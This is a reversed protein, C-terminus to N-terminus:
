KLTTKPKKPLEIQITCYSISQNKKKKLFLRDFAESIKLLDQMIKTLFDREGDMVKRSHLHETKVWFKVPFGSGSVEMKPTDGMRPDLSELTQPGQERGQM